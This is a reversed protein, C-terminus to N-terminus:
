DTPVLRWKEGKGSVKLPIQYKNLTDTLDHALAKLRRELSDDHYVAQLVKSTSVGRPKGWIAKLLLWQWHPIPHTVGQWAFKDDDLPGNGLGGPANFGELIPLITPWYFRVLGEGLSLSEAAARRLRSIQEQVLVREHPLLDREAVIVFWPNSVAFTLDADEWHFKDYAARALESVRAQLAAAADKALAKTDFQAVPYRNTVGHPLTGPPEPTDTPEPPASATAARGPLRQNLGPKALAGQGWLRAQKKAEAQLQPSRNRAAPKSLEEQRAAELGRALASDKLGAVRGFPFSPPWDFFFRVFVIHGPM